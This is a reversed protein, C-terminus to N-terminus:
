THGGINGAPSSGAIKLDLTQHKVMKAVLVYARLLIQVWLTRTRLGANKGTSNYPCRERCSEFRRFGSEYDPVKEGLNRSSVRKAPSSGAVDPNSIRRETWQAM